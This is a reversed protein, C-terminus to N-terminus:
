SNGSLTDETASLSDILDSQCLFSPFPAFAGQSSDLYDSKDARANPAIGNSQRALYSM